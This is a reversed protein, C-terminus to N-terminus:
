DRKGETGGDQLRIGYLMRVTATLNEVAKVPDVRAQAEAEAVAQLAREREAKKAAWEEERVRKEVGAKEASEAALVASALKCAEGITLDERTGMEVFRAKLLNTIQRTPRGEQIAWALECIKQNELLAQLYTNYVELTGHKVGYKAELDYYACIERVSSRGPPKTALDRIVQERVDPPLKRHLNNTRGRAM